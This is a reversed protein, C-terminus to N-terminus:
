IFVAGNDLELQGALKVKHADHKGPTLDNGIYALPNIATTLTTVGATVVPVRLIL